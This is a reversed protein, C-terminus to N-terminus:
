ALGFERMAPLFNVNDHNDRCLKLLAFRQLESLAKWASDAPPTVGQARAYAAVPEPTRAPSAYLASPPEPLPRPADGSREAILDVLAERFAAIESPADCALHLLRERDKFTFRSWQRLTLKVGCRDLKLRVAMPVCRLSAVFDSEFEFTEVTM